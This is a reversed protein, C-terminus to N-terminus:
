DEEAGSGYEMRVLPPFLVTSNFGDEEAGSGFEMRALPPFLVASEIDDDDAESEFEMRALPPFPLESLEDDDENAGCGAAASFRWMSRIFATVASRPHTTEAM